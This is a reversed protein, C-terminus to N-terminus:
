NEIPVKEASDIVLVDISGKHKGLKLGLQNELADFPGPAPDLQAPRDAPYDLPRYHLRYVFNGSLGTKDILPINLNRSLNTVLDQISGRTSLAGVQGGSAPFPGFSSYPGADEQLMPINEADRKMVPHVWPVDNGYPSPKMKLGGKAITLDYVDTSRQERHLVIKFREILLNQLMVRFQERTAGPPVKAVIDIIPEDMWSPAFYQFDPLNFAYQLANKLSVGIVSFQGPLTTGPGGSYSGFGRGPLSTNVTAEKVSAVEFHVLEQAAPLWAVLLLLLSRTM